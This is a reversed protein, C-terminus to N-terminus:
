FNLHNKCCEKIACFKSMFIKDKRILLSLHTTYMVSGKIYKGTEALSCPLVKGKFDHIDARILVIGTIYTCSLNCFSVLPVQPRSYFSDLCFGGLQQRSM